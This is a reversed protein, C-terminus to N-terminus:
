SEIKTDKEKMEHLSGDTDGEKYYWWSIFFCIAGLFKVVGTSGVVYYSIYKSNYLWCTSTSDCNKSWIMCSRDIFAGIIIPGPISAVIRLFVWNFGM